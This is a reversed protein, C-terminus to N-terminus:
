ISDEVSLSHIEMCLIRGEAEGSLLLFFFSPQHSVFYFVCDYCGDTQWISITSSATAALVIHPFDSWTRGSPPSCEYIVAQPFFCTFLQCMESVDEASFCLLDRFHKQLKQEVVLSFKAQTQSFQWSVPLQDKFSGSFCRLLPSTDSM